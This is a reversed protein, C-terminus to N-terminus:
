KELEKLGEVTLVATVGQAFAPQGGAISVIYKGPVIKRNGSEDVRSLQRAAIPITIRRSQHAALHVRQFAALFPHEGAPSDPAKVYVEAVEDAARRTTNTGTVCISASDGAAISARALEPRQYHFSSYSLGYGFPYLVQGNFYRYTRNQMSYDEFPPLDKTDRYFTVPLRGSPNNEGALTEAIATGAEEGGYWAELVADAHQNAWNVALASGSTLVVILPRGTTKLAELLRKQAAPLDISTRDGGSFGDLDVKMEEGELDPSLGVFAVIADANRAENVAEDLLPQAPPLWDFSVHRNPGTRREETRRYDIRLTHPKADRFNLSAALKGDETDVVLNGDIYIRCFNGVPESKQNTSGTDQAKKAPIIGRFSFTYSGPGPPQLIGTWRVSFHNAPVGPAPSAGNWDFSINPDNRVFNPQGSWTLNDFYEGRLGVQPSGGGQHLASSPVTSPLGDVLVSGAAYTVSSHNFQKRIGALPLVPRPATASYNGEVDEIIEATPGVVAIRRPAQLPLVDARNKLLVISEKAAALALQRNKPSDVEALTIRNFPVRDPPDFMGLRIRTTMLRIVSRDLDSEKLLGQRVASVLSRYSDGCNLDDGALITAAAAHMVDPTFHHGHAVDSVADCDSVVYGQFHWSNRLVDKLLLDSACAPTGDVANYACMVSQAHGEVVAARFAPLYTDELDHPSVDVNFTHRLPEPGSHVAFHKPTAVAMLYKPDDGQLGQVFNVAMQSALYPDEGYTEQGRGWRPDRFINVNPAWFTIGTYFDNEGKRQSDNYKARGEIAIAASVQKMLAPDWTAALAIAQPFTTAVGDFAVGHLAENNWAYKPVGLRPIAAQGRDMTQAVKEELTMRGVLDTARAEPSLSPDLYACTRPTCAADPRAQGFVCGAYSGTAIAAAVLFVSKLAMNLVFLKIHRRGVKWGLDM